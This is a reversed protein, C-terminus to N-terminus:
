FYIRVGLQLGVTASRFIYDKTPTFVKPGNVTGLSVGGLFTFYTNFKHYINGDVQLFNRPSIVDNQIPYSNVTLDVPASLVQTYLNHSYTLGLGFDTKETITKVAAYRLAFWNQREHFQYDVLISPANDTTRFSPFDQIGFNITTLTYGIAIESRWTPNHDLSFGVLFGFSTLGAGMNKQPGDTETIGIGQVAFNTQFFARAPQTQAFTYSSLFLAALLLKNKM